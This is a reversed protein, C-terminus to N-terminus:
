YECPGGNAKRAFCFGCFQNPRAPWISDEFMPLVRTEWKKKLDPLMAQVYDGKSTGVIEGSDVFWLEASINEVDPYLNLAAVAYLELQDEYGGRNKGTKFDIIRITNTKADFVMADIKIRLWANKDFWGTVGWDKDFTIELESKAGLERISVMEEGLLKYAEPVEVGTTKLFVEGAKHIESGRDMAASGPERIGLVVTLKFKQPCQEYTNLRSYSWATVPKGVGAKKVEVAM